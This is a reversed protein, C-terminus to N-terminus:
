ELFRIKAFTSEDNPLVIRETRPHKVFIVIWQEDIHEIIGKRKVSGSFAVKKGLLEEM